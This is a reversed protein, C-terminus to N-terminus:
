ALIPKVRIYVFRGWVVSCPLIKKITKVNPLNLLTNLSKLYVKKQTSKKFNKAKLLGQNLAIVIVFVGEGVFAWVSTQAVIYCFVHIAFFAMIPLLCTHKIFLALM